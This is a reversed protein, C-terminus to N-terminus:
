ENEDAAPRGPEHNGSKKYSRVDSVKLFNDRRGKVPNHAKLKGDMILQRVRSQSVGLIKAAQATSILDGTDGPPPAKDLTKNEANGENECLSEIRM